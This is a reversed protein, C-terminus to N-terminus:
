VMYFQTNNFFAPGFFCHGLKLGRKKGRIKKAATLIKFFIELIKIFPNRLLQKIKSICKLNCKLYNKYIISRFNFHFISVHCYM